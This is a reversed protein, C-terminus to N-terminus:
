SHSPRNPCHLIKAQDQGIECSKKIKFLRKDFFSVNITVM